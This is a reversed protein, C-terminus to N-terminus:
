SSLGLPVLDSLQPAPLGSSPLRWSGELGMGLIFTCGHEQRHPGTTWGEDGEILHQLTPPLIITGMKYILFSGEAECVMKSLAPNLCSDM